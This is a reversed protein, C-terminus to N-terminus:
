ALGVALGQLLEKDAHEVAIYYVMSLPKAGVCIVDNVNMAVCDIGITDYKGLAQAVMIKTGVGDTSIAVGLTRSVPIVNAYYGFDIAPRADKPAYGFTPALAALLLEFGPIEHGPKVGARSYATGTM